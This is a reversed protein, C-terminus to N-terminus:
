DGTLEKHPAFSNVQAMQRRARVVDAQICIIHVHAARAFLLNFGSLQKNFVLQKNKNFIRSCMMIFQNEPAAPSPEAKAREWRTSDEEARSEEGDGRM